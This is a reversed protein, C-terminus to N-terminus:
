ILEKYLIFTDVFGHKSHKFAKPVRGLISFGFKEWVKLSGINTSVVFNFQMAAYGLKKAEELAFAGMKTCIGQGTATGAVIFGANCIHSGLGPQNPRIYLTGKIHGDDEYVYVRNMKSFWIDLMEEDTSQPDYPYTEGARFTERLLPLIEKKDQQTVLRIM